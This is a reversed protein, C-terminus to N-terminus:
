SAAVPVGLTVTWFPTASGEVPMVNVTVAAGVSVVRLGVVFACLMVNVRVKVPVFKMAPDVTMNPVYESVGAVMLPVLMVTETGAASKAVLGVAPCMATVTTPGPPEAVAATLKVM